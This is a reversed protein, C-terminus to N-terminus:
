SSIKKITLTANVGSGLNVGLAITASIVLDIVSGSTLTVFTSGNYILNSNATLSRTIITSPINTGNNRVALTLNSAGTASVNVYYNIEYTGAQSITIANSTPYTVNNNPLTLALPIQTASGATLNITQSTNSYRGGYAALGSTPGTPGTPGQPIVFNLLYSNM